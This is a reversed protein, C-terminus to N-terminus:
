AAEQKKADRRRRYAARQQIRICERCHRHGTRPHRYTNAESYPHDAPCHTRSAFPHTGHAIQDRSNESKTGWRLNSLTNNGANGDRHLAETGEPAPGVFAQLVLRHVKLTRRVGDKVLVARVHGTPMVFPRLVRGRLRKGDRAIRDLSRVRGQDSVEYAGEYGSVPRWNETM